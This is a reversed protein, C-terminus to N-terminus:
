LHVECVGGACAVAEAAKTNDKDETFDDWPIEKYERTLDCWVKWNRVDKLCYTMVQIDGKFYREAFQFARRIWDKQEYFKDLSMCIVTGNTTKYYFVNMMPDICDNPANYVELPIVGIGLLIDCASWLDDRFCRLGDVILGSALISADGYEKTIEAPTYVATFPAQSYDKDGSVPLLSVGGFWQRHKYIFKEVEDWEEDKVNITNSVNHKLWPQTCCEIRTGYEIWNQQTVLIKKLLEIASLQNKTVSGAPVECLFKIVVDTKNNSWVSEEVALPNYKQFFQLAPELKNAQVHRFYRKAHHAHIGSSTGLICSSNGAPKICTTRAAKNIGIKAALEENTKLVIEAGKRQVSPNFAVEPSDMMGTMSVGLLAEREVIRKTVEGLYEFSTYGAQLTGLVAASRCADYFEQPTTAKKMNIETLNCFSWGSNGDADRAYMAVEGCPNVLMELNDCWFVGPEGFERVSKFINHFEEISTSDRLMLVTNNSRARQPNTINWNGTKANMMEMDDWSFLCITASRRIGGSLVSDSVHMIMDYVDIPRLFVENTNVFKSEVLKIIKEISIKLGEPGPAKGGHSIPSGKPRVLSYDFKVRKGFYEPFPQNATFYMSVAVGVADSWGEISDPVTYTVTEADKNISRVSPMKAIHQKQVSFGAGCGCMLVFMAEQFFRPRDAYSAACNYIRTNLKLIPFGGFQLARQSGLIEKKLLAKEAIDIDDKITELIDAYKTRHMNMVRTIQEAWTERRKEEPLYKAYKSFRTYEQLAKISM